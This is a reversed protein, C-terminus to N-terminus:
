AADTAATWGDLFHVMQEAADLYAALAAAPDAPKDGRKAALAALVPAASFGAVRAAGQVVDPAAAPPTERALRLLARALTVFGSVHTALLAVQEDPNGATAMTAARLQLVKGRAEYELQHRLDAPRVPHGAAPFSGVLVRHQALIDTVEIPFVDACRKWEDVTMTMPPPHGAARWDRVAASAAALDAGSARTSLVLLNYDSGHLSAGPAAQSGYLVVAQLGEGWAHRLRDTFQELTMRM